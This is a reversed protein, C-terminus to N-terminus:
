QFCRKWLGETTHNEDGQFNTKRATAFCSNSKETVIIRREGFVAVARDLTHGTKVREFAPTTLEFGM